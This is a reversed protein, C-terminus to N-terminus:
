KEHTSQDCNKEALDYAQKLDKKLGEVCSSHAAKEEETEFSLYVPLRAKRSFMLYYPSYGTTDSKTSNYAHALQSM